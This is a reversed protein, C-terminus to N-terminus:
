ALQFVIHLIVTSDTPRGNQVAPKFRIQKAAQVASEDLGHGLGRVVRMVRIGGSAELVAELLVEGQIGMRRAEETYAPTPKFLIEAPDVNASVDAPKTRGEGRVVEAATFGSQEVQSRSRATRNENATEGGFGASAVVGRTGTAQGSGNGYGTGVPLDFSGARAINVPTNKGNRALVGNPDGFGGTQVKPPVHDLTPPASSGSSFVNTKVAQRPMLPAYTPLTGPKTPPPISLPAVPNAMVVRTKLDPLVKLTQTPPLKTEIAPARPPVAHARVHSEPPLTEVLKVVHYDKPRPDVGYPRLLMEGVVLFVLIAQAGMSSLFERWPPRAEPLLAFVDSHDVSFHSGV